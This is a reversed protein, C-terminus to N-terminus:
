LQTGYSSSFTDSSCVGRGGAIVLYFTFGFDTILIKIKKTVFVQFNSIEVYHHPLLLKITVYPTFIVSNQPRCSPIYVSLTTGLDRSFESILTLRM